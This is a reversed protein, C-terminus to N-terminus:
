RARTLREIHETAAAREDPSGLEQVTRCYGLAEEIRGQSECWTALLQLLETNQPIIEFARIWYRSAEEMNGMMSAAKGRNKLLFGRLEQVSPKERDKAIGIDLIAAAEKARELSLLLAGLNNYAEVFFSDTRIARGYAEEAGASDHRDWRVTGLNYLAAAYNSKL